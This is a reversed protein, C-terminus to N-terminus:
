TDVPFEERQPKTRFSMLTFYHVLVCKCNVKMQLNYSSMTMLKTNKKKIM